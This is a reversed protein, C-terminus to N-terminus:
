QCLLRLLLFSARFRFSHRCYPGLEIVLSALAAEDTAPRIVASIEKSSFQFAKTIRQQKAKSLKLVTEDPDVEFCTSLSELTKRLQTPDDGIIVVATNTTQPKIGCRQIAKQIQRQASAYLLTEMAMSKSINTKSQFVQLANLTAFFLHEETAILDADFFQLESRHPSTKRTKKLFGEVKAFEVKRYGTIAVYSNYEKLYHLM